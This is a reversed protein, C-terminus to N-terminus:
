SKRPRLTLGVLAPFSKPWKVTGDNAYLQKSIGRGLIWAGIANSRFSSVSGLAGPASCYIALELISALVLIAIKVKSHRLMVAIITM